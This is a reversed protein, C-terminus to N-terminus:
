LSNRVLQSCDVYLRQDIFIEEYFRTVLRVFDKIEYNDLM